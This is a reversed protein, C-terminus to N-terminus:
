LLCCHVFDSKKGIMGEAGAAFGGGGQAILRENWGELPLWVYVNIEDNLGPHTYTVTVNCFDIADKPPAAGLWGFMGYGAWGKVEKAEVKTVSIGFYEPKPIADANCLVGGATKKATASSSFIIATVALNWLLM